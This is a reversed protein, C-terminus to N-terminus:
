GPGPPLALDDDRVPAPEPAPEAAPASPRHVVLGLVPAPAAPLAGASSHDIGRTSVHARVEPGGYSLTVERSHGSHRLRREHMSEIIGIGTAKVKPNENRALHVAHSIHEKLSYGLEDLAEQMAEPSVMGLFRALPDVPQALPHEIPDLTM